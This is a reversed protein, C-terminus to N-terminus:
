SWNREKMRRQYVENEYSTYDCTADIPSDGNYIVQGYKLVSDVMFALSQGNDSKLEFANACAESLLNLIEKIIDKESVENGNEDKM